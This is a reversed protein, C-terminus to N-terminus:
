RFNIGGTGFGFGCRHTRINYGFGYGFGGHARDKVTTSYHTKESHALKSKQYNTGVLGIALSIAFGLVLVLYIVDDSNLYRIIRKTVRM